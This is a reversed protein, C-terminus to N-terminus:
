RIRRIILHAATGVVAWTAGIAVLAAYLDILDRM